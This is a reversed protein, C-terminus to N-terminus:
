DSIWGRSRARSEHLIVQNVGYRLSQWWITWRSWSARGQARPGIPGGLFVTRPRRSTGGGKRGVVTHYPVLRAWLGQRSRQHDRANLCSFDHSCAKSFSCVFWVEAPVLGFNANLRFPPDLFGAGSAGSTSGGIEASVILLDGVECRESVELDPHKSVKADSGSTGEIGMSESNIMELRSRQITSMNSLSLVVAGAATWMAFTASQMRRKGTM